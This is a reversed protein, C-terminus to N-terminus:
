KREGANRMSNLDPAMLDIGRREMAVIADLRQTATGQLMPANETERMMLVDGSGQPAASSKAKAGRERCQELARANAQTVEFASDLTRAMRQMVADIQVDREASKARTTVWQGANSLVIPLVSLLLTQKFTWAKPQTQQETM